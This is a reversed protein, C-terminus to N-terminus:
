PIPSYEGLHNKEGLNELTSGPPKRKGPDKGRKVNPHPPKLNREGRPPGKNKGRGNRKTPCLPPREFKM